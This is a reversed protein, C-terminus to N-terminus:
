NGNNNVILRSHSDLYLWYAYAFLFPSSLGHAFVMIVGCTYGLERARIFGLTVVGMHVVSSYAVLLKLDGQRLCIFSCVISGILSFCFYGILLTNLKVNPLFLLLGYSGLKLLVGALMM